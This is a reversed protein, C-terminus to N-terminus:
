LGSQIDAINPFSPFIVEDGKKLTLLVCSLHLASFGTNVAVVKKNRDKIIKKIENEFLEVSKGMGLWGVRLSNIAANFEEKELLPKFVPILNNGGM